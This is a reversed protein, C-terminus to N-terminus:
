GCRATGCWTTCTASSCRTRTCRWTSAPCCRPTRKPTCTSAAWPRRWRTSGPTPSTSTAATTTSGTTSAPVCSACWNPWRPTPSPRSPPGRAEDVLVSDAEDIIAVNPEPVVLDATDTALRDRLVDFGLESVSAYTIDAAYAARREETTSEQGIWGVEVGLLTYLPRMWEADRRALYDNVSLVHVRQGRLAFGAAALAGTLTKGEGTAMEA